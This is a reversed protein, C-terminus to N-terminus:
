VSFFLFSFDGVRGELTTFSRSVPHLYTGREYLFSHLLFFSLFEYCFVYCLM